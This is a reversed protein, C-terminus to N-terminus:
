SCARILIAGVGFIAGMEGIMRGWEGEAILFVDSRGILLRAGANTGMGIGFGFFPLESNVFPELISAGL